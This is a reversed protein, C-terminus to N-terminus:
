PTRPLFAVAQPHLEVGGLKAISKRERELAGRVDAFLFDGLQMLAPHVPMRGIHGSFLESVPKGDKTTVAYSASTFVSYGFLSREVTLGFRGEDLAVLAREFQLYKSLAARKGKLVYGLYANVQDQTYHPPIARADMAANELDLNIQAPMEASENKPAPLEPSRFMQILGAALLAGLLLKAAQFFRQRMKARRGDFMSQLRRQTDKPDEEKLKEKIMASRDLRAGCDHCYIREPENERRCEPCLLKITATTM